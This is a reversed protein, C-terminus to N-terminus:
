VHVHLSRPVRTSSAPQPVQLQARMSQLCVESRGASNTPRSSEVAPARLHSTGQLHLTSHWRTNKNCTHRCDSGRYTVYVCAYARNCILTCTMGSYLWAHTSPDQLHLPSCMICPRAVKSPPSCWSANEYSGRLCSCSHVHNTGNMGGFMSHHVLSGRQANSAAAVQSSAKCQKSEAQLKLIRCM